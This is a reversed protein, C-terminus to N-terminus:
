RRPHHDPAGEKYAAATRDLADKLAAIDKPKGNVVFM